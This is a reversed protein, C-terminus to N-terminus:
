DLAEIDMTGILNMLHQEYDNELDILTNEYDIKRDEINVLEGEYSVELLDQDINIGRFELGLAQTINESTDKAAEITRGSAVGGTGIFQSEIQGGIDEKQTLATEMHGQRRTSLSDLDLNFEESALRISTNLMGLQDLVNEYKAAFGSEGWTPFDDGYTDWFNEFSLGTGVEGGAVSFIYQQWENEDTTSPDDLWAPAIWNEGFVDTGVEGTEADIIGIGTAPDWAQGIDPCQDYSPALSGDWCTIQQGPTTNPDNPDYCNCNEDQLQGEPCKTRCLQDGNAM